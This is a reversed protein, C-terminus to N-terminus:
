SGFEYILTAGNSTVITITLGEPADESDFSLKLWDKSRDLLITDISAQLLCTNEATVGCGPIGLDVGDQYSAWELEVNTDDWEVRIIDIEIAEYSTNFYQIEVDGRRIRERTIEIPAINIVTLTDSATIPNPNLTGGAPTAEAEAENPVEFPAFIQGCDKFLGQQSNFRLVEYALIRWSLEDEPTPGSDGYGDIFIESCSLHLQFGGDEGASDDPVYFFIDQNRGEVSWETDPVENGEPDVLTAMGDGTSGSLIYGNEFYFVYNAGSTQNIGPVLENALPVAVSAVTITVSDGPNLSDVSCTITQDASTTCNAELSTVSQILLFPDVTDTISIDHLTVNGTNTYVLTFTVVEGVGVPNPMFTKVLDHDPTQNIETEADDCDDADPTDSICVTNLIATGNDIDDQTVDYTFQFTWTEGVDLDGDTNVSETPTGLDISSDLGSANLIDSMSPYMTVNGDNTVTIDYTLTTPGDIEAKDVSKVVSMAPTQNIETEADDCDDADPTDSICVTNLIATGNDIDDQTVDYTFQFTWTEGVDLDGDTNVSETPTGLDISSDLGSANLIDSMSPYMTVNGDNTVTIDYTLTTPGDIEAKDVSKVVSMAPTQNIETEADDCDDADPTDSICVTNLIATGNDIDDQTVDYTFQFTWTEGVDLDGDTNVSETPTGLDISSDLGSANLIDSMSPYMTVNGDNTVTIDYTLTTPGDIEAKDVSKVVSMAPTQNIETEADDCDDADPTDSICVTNLIATGNDIDDQTVDYTFQFTWTEGVDLDGDTNVSETPTGLDISSDLGSANLIDSMSPYMTVNGDNTVTIDYTLTTPGDIEAKDVSKVVSMAPTQNIETEADDCDDADPTDSICVTNLIATGNDIDDQTVDYTFQFTWTEGVDLDGDTNVSETPTGLDISSDLGSANLIDSMSPYMTVNGDNTVTIDYTLTTPGDIEAKDVSKVVSMAPTQNIETEADDCDDADPTDSICVTNLIATGNDIDDQTVDYTFQFTWTEGVDLDGDTNVSETPTGLDISSDLGSANLIDSMSPYMTVNGDNTVTIDYTLTTPGDIEAKDVSKVVSMAPTQNIETEADDCDDADPTDSICVTNLIATGNDIDDQTVDYTFQFTWTEGVDLDGDTNVSETPTGLDISSDLGSANLIDSMSPYMTVNGDNTVTIDYTLTTPGDIEAKDVSKVVSMAPTQNIETEADDCDDADPTDSICVTNLIATGNDIDDQTVDYTFQFTWTEGVDLDGDTNVSETPTGLDISSDLGSANLIDSMSPYMTVNGDNTVTIDYTLTTPGDIEAKDVSKVVSMAPTQNIETEADDCDDADPTDSICVTNLIATGNDIDDQTVDYTFQFTWTEGVDLDGDTNVSETPTGLDISSDLGSANLIDSMSPYMTVNGDNTVTIDYTLTTPGDIEAKDVSKVVSMAPTQNIETEADDCDDADPTDSICVTNLIATGNDIDDQTVDYTFQFTWTEGVDLDGDTNVSETPTGLDISSDLGSANLIDSMSPYMTVNGDNTVTIDYTLTTPGDIEAKDVSKVVSMAPTQNIPTNVDSCEQAVAPDVNLVCAQNVIDNGNNIDDQTLTYSATYTWTETPEMVDDDGQSEVPGVLGPPDDFQLEVGAQSLIDTLTPALDVAGVNTVVIEYEIVDGASNAVGNPDGDIATVTKVIDLGASPTEVTDCQPTGDGDADICVVNTVSDGNDLDAAVITYSYTYYWTGSVALDGVADVTGTADSFPGALTVLNGNLSDSLTAEVDAQSLSVNGTNDVQITYNIVDGEASYYTVDASKSVTANPTQVIPTSVDSCEQAVAPDVNLVCAQNVIDNGSNIDDQTLTYSATYTWTETPEMVDDDGQSEVPGVLGPPDDFQLEVGAQSLIDTLTPALDVAGVNTVVIEYEIVDGASNAVGNPDGDIATVTKVIDLGASPTEVTDCQPTGDGDADICVVNTVSDGNDLDAAVITYSYTYYWTGSVALDGVADVTGTADSFPGALTVLNGNLSDSLTAEVDAQSLSVNGTNDVQITYNIVDGEASYYTVDASKSVTANPTQVIPTSVDSCEQAVAPDVNLVCAQNVIDNGNNIDDQTLTYSATYTWTETPEMVDDDGQSEVPGVLGPPDDFQLRIGSQSLVDTLTPALDVAGVNTVVIEYEIVDGASNAVGNPDGDIATVTKVIDLGALPTEVEDCEDIGDGDADECIVNTVSKRDIDAQVITYSFTYYWTGGVGLDGTADVDPDLSEFPGALSDVPVDIGNLTDSMAAEVEAVSLAVNGDNVVTITYNIVDDVASFYTVDASKGVTLAPTETATNTITCTYAQGPQANVNACDGSYTVNYTIGNITIQGDTVGDESVNFPGDSAIVNYSATESTLPDASAVFAVNSAVAPAVTHSFSAVSTVGGVVNGNDLNKVVNITAEQVSNTFTCTVDASADLTVQSNLVSISDPGDVCELNTLTYVGSDLLTSSESLDYVGPLVEVNTVDETGSVGSPGLGSISDAASLTFDAVTAEGGDIVKVLTITATGVPRLACDKHQSTGMADANEAQVTCVNLVNLDTFSTVGFLSYDLSCSIKTDVNSAEQYEDDVGDDSSPDLEPSVYSETCTGSPLPSVTANQKCGELQTNDCTFLYSVEADPDYCVAYNVNQDGDTDLDICAGKDNVNAVNQLENDYYWEAELTTATYELSVGNLDSKGDVGSDGGPDLFLEPEASVNSASVVVMLSILFFSLTFWLFNRTQTTGKAETPLKM